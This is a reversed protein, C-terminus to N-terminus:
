IQKITGCKCTIEISGLITYQCSNIKIEFKKGTQIVLLKKCTNCRIETM